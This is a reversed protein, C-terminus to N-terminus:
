FMEYIFDRLEEVTETESNSFAKELKEVLFQKLADDSDFGHDKIQNVIMSVTKDIDGLDYDPIVEVKSHAPQSKIWYSDNQHNRHFLESAM